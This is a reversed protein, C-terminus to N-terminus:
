LLQQKTTAIQDQIIHYYLCSWPQAFVFNFLTHIRLQVIIIWWFSNCLYRMKKKKMRITTQLTFQKNGGSRIKCPGRYRLLFRKKKERKIKAGRSIQFGQTDLMNLPHMHRHTDTINLHCCNCCQTNLIFGVESWIHRNNDLSQLRKEAFRPSVVMVSRM